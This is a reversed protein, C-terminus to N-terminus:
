MITLEIYSHVSRYIESLIYFLGEIYFLNQIPRFHREQRMEYKM